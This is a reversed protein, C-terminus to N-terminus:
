RGQGQPGIEDFPIPKFGIQWAPSDERLRLNGAAFDVCKPDVNVLNNTVVFEEKPMKRLHRTLWWGDDPEKGDGVQRLFSADGKWFVNREVRNGFPTHWDGKVYEALEPYRTSYPPKTLPIGYQTGCKQFEAIRQDIHPKQWGTGRDDVFVAGPCDIFINNVITNQMAGGLFVPWTIKWFANGEITASGYGDDLYIGRCHRGGFGLVHHLYNHRIVCGRLTANRGTYFIGCDNSSRCVHDVENYEILLDNGFFQIASHPANWIHNHAVRQGVGTMWVAPRYMRHWLGFDHIKSNTVYHRSPTLKKRDGGILFVGGAGLDHLDCADVGCDAGDQILVAYQGVNRIESRAVRCSVCNTMSVASRRSAEFVLDEFSVHAVGDMEVLRSAVSIEVKKAGEPPWFVLLGSPRDIMWEGPKDLECLMNFGYFWQGARYGWQIYPQSVRMERSPADLMEVRHHQDVWDCSWSGCVHPDAEGQWRAPYDGAYIFRGESSKVTGRVTKDPPGLLKAIKLLDEDREPGRAVTMPRDDAFLDPRGASTDDPPPAYSGVTAEGQNYSRAVRMQIAHEYNWRFDGWDRVGAAALDYAVVKDRSVAPLRSRIRADSVPKSGTLLVGGSLRVEAGPDGRYVVPAADTGSDAAALVFPATRVHRGKTLRVEAGGTPLTGAARRARIEDRARELTAFPAERTGAADDRGDPSVWCVVAVEGSFVPCLSALAFLCAIWEKILMKM